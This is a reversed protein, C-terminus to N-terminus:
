KGSHRAYFDKYFILNQKLLKPTNLSYPCHETCNGCEICDEIQMMKEKWDDEMYPQYPARQLVFSMRAAWNIPIGVPCPMCYGCGRCFDSGLEARDKEISKLMLDDLPPPTADLGIFEDLESERQMGWITVVNEYRHLFAFAAPINTILGGCLAKMAIVGLDHKKCEEILQLEPESSLLSLPFQLTDFLSSRIAELAIPPRHNTMGLFRIKGSEKARLLAEYLSDPDKPDPMGEPNHLQYLDIYDTKLNKLSTELHKVLTAKDRAHTKTAIIVNQRVGSLAKGIKEESDSYGRATDYFNIGSEYAKRLIGVAENMEVRQLPLVGFSTKTVMLNTRGLRVKKMM